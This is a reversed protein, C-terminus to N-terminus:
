LRRALHAHERLEVEVAHRAHLLRLEELLLLVLLRDLLLALDRLGGGGGLRLGRRLRALSRLSRGLLLRGLLAVLRLLLLLLLLLGLELPHLHLLLLAARLDSRGM